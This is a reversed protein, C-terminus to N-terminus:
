VVEGRPINTLLLVVLAVSVVLPLLMADTEIDNMLLHYSAALGALSHELVGVWLLGRYRLPGRVFAYVYLTLPVVMAAGFSGHAALFGDAKAGSVKFLPGGFTLEALLGLAEWTIMLVLILQLRRQVGRRSQIANMPKPPAM